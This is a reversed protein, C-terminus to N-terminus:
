SGCAFYKWQKDAIGAFPNVEADGSLLLVLLTLVGHNHPIDLKHMRHPNNLHQYM